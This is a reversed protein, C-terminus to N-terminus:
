AIIPFMRQMHERWVQLSHERMIKEEETKRRKQIANEVADDIFQQKYMNEYSLKGVSRIM